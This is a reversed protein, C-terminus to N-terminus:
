CVNRYVAKILDNINDYHGLDIDKKKKVKNLFLVIKPVQIGHRRLFNINKFVKEKSGDILVKGNKLIIINDSIEYVMDIDHSVIIITKNYKENLKKLIKILNDKSKSDLGVTPEDLVIVSPNFALVSTIAVRKAEGLSLSFPNKDLYSDDLKMLSLADKVQKDIKNLKYKFYRMGFEIEQKVTEKFFQEEPNQFVLGINVRLKNINYIRKDKELVFKGISVNGSTPLILANILELMTTKGSGSPGIISNVKGKQINVNIDSLAVRELKTQKNYIYNVNNFKIEM